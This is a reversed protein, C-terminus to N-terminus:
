MDISNSFNLVLAILCMSVTHERLEAHVVSVVSSLFLIMEHLTFPNASPM